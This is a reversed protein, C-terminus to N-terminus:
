RDFLQFLFRADLIIIEAPMKSNLDIAICCRQNFLQLFKEDRCSSLNTERNNLDQAEEATCASPLQFIEKYIISCNSAIQILSKQRL